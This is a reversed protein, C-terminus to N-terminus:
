LKTRISISVLCPRFIVNEPHNQSGMTFQTHKEFGFLSKTKEKPRGVQQHVHSKNENILPRNPDM